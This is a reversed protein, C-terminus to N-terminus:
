KIFYMGICEMSMTTLTSADLNWGINITAGTVLGTPWGPQTQYGNVTIPGCGLDNGNKCIWQQFVKSWMLYYSSLENRYSNKGEWDLTYGGNPACTVSNLSNRTKISGCDAWPCSGSNIEISTIITSSIVWNSDCNLPNTVGINCQAFISSGPM